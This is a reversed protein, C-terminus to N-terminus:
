ESLSRRCCSLIHRGLNRCYRSPIEKLSIVIKNRDLDVKGVKNTYIHDGDDGVKFVFLKDEGGEGFIKLETGM